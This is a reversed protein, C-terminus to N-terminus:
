SINGIFAGTTVLAFLQISWDNDPRVFSHELAVPANLRFMLELSLNTVSVKRKMLQFLRRM